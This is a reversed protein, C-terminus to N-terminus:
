RGACADRITLGKGFAELARANRLVFNRLFVTAACYLLRNCWLSLAFVVFFSSVWISPLWMLFHVVIAAALLCTVFLMRSNGRPSLSVSYLLWLFAAPIILIAWSHFAFGALIFAAIASIPCCLFAFWVVLKELYPAEGTAGAILSISVDTYLRRAYPRDVGIVINGDRASKVFTTYEAETMAMHDTEIQHETTKPFPGDM